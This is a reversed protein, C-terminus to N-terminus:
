RSWRTPARPPWRPSAAGAGAALLLNKPNVGALLLGVALAKVPSFADIGAMWTPPEPEVGTGTAQAM